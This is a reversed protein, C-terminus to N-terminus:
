VARMPEVNGDVFEGFRPAGARIADGFDADIALPSGEDDM